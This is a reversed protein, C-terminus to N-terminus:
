RSVEVMIPIDATPADGLCTFIVSGSGTKAYSVAASAEQIAEDANKTGSYVPWCRVSENDDGKIESNIIPQTFLGSSETWSDAFLTASFKKKRLGDLADAPTPNTVGPCIKAALEDPLLSAKNLPTGEVIPQDDRTLTVTYEVGNMVMKYQGPAGPQRDTM